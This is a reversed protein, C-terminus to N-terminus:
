NNKEDGNDQEIQEKAEKEQQINDQESPRALMFKLEEMDAMLKLILGFLIWFYAGMLYNTLLTTPMQATYYKYINVAGMAFFVMSIKYNKVFEVVKNGM